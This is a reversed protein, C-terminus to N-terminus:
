NWPAIIGVSPARVIRFLGPRRSSPREFSASARFRRRIVFSRFSPKNVVSGPPSAILSVDFKSLSNSRFGSLLVEDRKADVSLISGSIRTCEDRRVLFAIDRSLDRHFRPQRDLSFINVFYNSASRPNPSRNSDGPIEDPEDSM